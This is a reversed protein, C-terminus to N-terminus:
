RLLQWADRYEGYLEDKEVLHPYLRLSKRPSFAGVPIVYWADEPVVYGVLVDIEAATYGYTNGSSHRNSSHPVRGQM